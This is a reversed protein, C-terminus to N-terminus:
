EADKKGREWEARIRLLRETERRDGIGRLIREGEALATEAEATRGRELHLKGLVGLLFGEFKRDGVEREIALAEELQQQAIEWRGLEVHLAGLSGLTHGEFGRDGVERVVSLAEEFRARAEDIRDQDRALSALNFLLIGEHRRNGVERAIVRAAEYCVRAEDTRGQDRHLIGLHGLAQGEFTRDGVERAIALAAETNRRADEEREQEHDLIGLRAIEIGERPRNGLERHIVLAAELRARAEDIRGQEGLIAGLFGLVVGDERRDGAQRHLERAAELHAMGDAVRGSRWEAFGLTTLVRRRNADDRVATLVTRGLDAGAGFPGRLLLVEWAAAFAATATREDGRVTARRCAAMLNDLDHGLARRRDPGGPSTLSAIAEPTGHGAYWAGHREEARAAAGDRELKERAYEQLSVYMRFRMEPEASEATREPLWPRLLSRDVLSRLVDPVWPAEGWAALDLVAEAAALTFGGEFVACQAFAAREWPELLEWSGDIADRLTGHRGGGTGALLRFRERMRAVIQAASMLRVRAAALEIALPMGEVLRVVERVAIAESGEPGFGPRHTRAREVFLETGPDSGLPEVWQLEEEALGLRERSTVLFRADAARALWPTVTAAAERVVQEFNDLILLCRGRAAIGHGAQIVPDRGGLQVGLAQAVAAAMGDRSRAETLDCFWVGGPWEELSRWGHRVALRTKGVGGPGHLTVLRAGGRLRGALEGLESERGVFADEEEPLRHPANAAAPGLTAAPRRGLAADIARVVEAMSGLRRGPDKAVCSAILRRVAPPLDAPLRREDPDRHLLAERVEDVTDGPFAPTGALCEYLICGLAFVDARHDEDRTLCEPSVYGWTGRVAPDSPPPAVDGSVAGTSPRDRRALGFDLVKVRGQPTIMVNGPKLDRHIVGGEHAAAVGRAIGGCVELADAWPLAGRRLRAALTEGEVWELVLFRGQASEEELGHITAVNPHSLSALLRAERTFRELREPSRAMDPPLLKLAVPRDLVEDRALYVVGMGGRGAEREIPYRGLRAPPAVAGTPPPADEPPRGRLASALAHIDKLGQVDATLAPDTPADWDVDRGDALDGALRLLERETEDSNM